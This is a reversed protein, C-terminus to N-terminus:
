GDNSADAPSADARFVEDLTRAPIVRDLWRELDDLEAGEIRARVPDPIEDFRQALLRLLVKRSQDQQGEDRGEKVYKKAFDSQFEYNRLTMHKELAIRAAEGLSSLIFDAYRISRETDLTRCASLAVTVNEAAADLSASTEDNQAGHAVATLVALEPMLRAQELDTVYPLDGPGLVIPRFVSGNGDLFIPRGCSRAVGDDLTVVLLSTPCTFRARAGVAYLPWTWKKAGDRALQVEVVIVELAHGNDDDLRIVADARYEALGSTGFEVQTIAAENFEASTARATRRVGPSNAGSGPGVARRLLEPALSPCDRFMDVLFEHMLSPM